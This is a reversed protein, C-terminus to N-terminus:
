QPVELASIEGRRMAGVFRDALRTPRPIRTGDCCRLTLRAAEELSVLHGVSVYIPRVATRTRLAFGVREGQHRLATRCGRRLGPERHEGCLLSKACGIAPRALLLGLHCALGMRRPHALGQGDFFLVDPDSALRAFAELLLPGERFTLLGPVYPFTTRGRVGVREVEVLDPWRLVVIGAYGMGSPADWSIDAGAVLRPAPVRGETVIRARLHRQIAVAETPTVNWPHLPPAFHM